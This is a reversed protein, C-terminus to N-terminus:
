SRLELWSLERVAKFRTTNLLNMNKSIFWLSMWWGPSTPSTTAGGRCQTARGAHYGALTGARCCRMGARRRGGVCARGCVAPTSCDVGRLPCADGRPGVSGAPYQSQYWKTVVRFRYLVINDAKPLTIRAASFNGLPDGM